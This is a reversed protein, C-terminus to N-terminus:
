EPSAMSIMTFLGTAVHVEVGEDPDGAGANSTVGYVDSQCITLTKGPKVVRGRAVLRDGTAPRLLNIKLETFCLAAIGVLVLMGVRDVGVLVVAPPEVFLGLTLLLARCSTTCMRKRKKKQGDVSQTIPRM